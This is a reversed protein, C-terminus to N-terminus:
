KIVLINNHVPLCINKKSSSMEILLRFKATYSHISSPTIIYTHGALCNSRRCGDDTWFPTAIVIIAPKFDKTTEKTSVNCYIARERELIFDTGVAGGGRKYM